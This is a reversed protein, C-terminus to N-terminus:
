WFNSAELMIAEAEEHTKQEAQEYGPMWVVAKKVSEHSVWAFGGNQTLTLNEMDASEMLLRNQRVKSTWYDGSELEPLVGTAPIEVGKGKELDQVAGPAGFDSDGLNGCSNCWSVGGGAKTRFRFWGNQHFVEVVCGSQTHLFVTCASGYQAKGELYQWLLLGSEGSAASPAKDSADIALQALNEELAIKEEAERQDRQKLQEASLAKPALKAVANNIVRLRTPKDSVAPKRCGPCNQQQKLWQELCTRCFIHEEECVTHADLVLSQCIACSYEDLMEDLAEASIQRQHKAPQLQAMVEAASPRQNPDNSLLKEVLAGLKASQTKSAKVTDNVLDQNFAFIGVGCRSVMSVGTLLESLMCGVAWMDDKNTYAKAGAKEPSAYTLTGARSGAENGSTMCALGFDTIKVEEEGSTFLVNDPKMDRHIMKKSHIHQLGECLQLVIKTVRDDGIPGKTAVMNVLSSWTGGTALEMVICFFRGKKHMYCTYYRIVNKHALRLLMQVERKLNEVPLGNREAKDVNIMKVAYLQDDMSSRMTYTKGFAGEGLLADDKNPHFSFNDETADIGNPQLAGAKRTAAEVQEGMRQQKIGSAKALTVDTCVLVVGVCIGESNYRPSVNALVSTAALGTQTVNTGKQHNVLELYVGRSADGKMAASVASKYKALCTPHLFGEMPKGVVTLRTHGTASAVVKNWQTVNGHNDVGFIPSKVSDMLHMLETAAEDAASKAETENDKMRSLLAEGENAEDSARLCDSALHGIGEAADVEWKLWQQSRGRVSDTYVEFSARPHMVGHKHQVITKQGQAAGGWRITTSLEPRFWILIGEDSIPVCLTGACISACEAFRVDIDEMCDTKVIQRGASSTNWKEILRQVMAELDEKSPVTGVCSIRGRYYVVAGSCGPILDVISPDSEILGRIRLGPNSGQQYMKDCLKSHLQLSREHRAHAATDILNTLAMSFAQTLLEIAMRMQFSVFKPEMHHAIMIGWLQDKVVIAVAITATVGMNALYEKHCAHAPRLSSMTLPLSHSPDGEQLLVPSDPARVDVLIRVSVARFQDRSRQPIDTAPYHLGLFSDDKINETCFETIVEGHHDEHFKYMMVRDYGSMQFFEESVQQCMSELTECTSLRDIAQRVRQHFSFANEYPDLEEIDIALGMDPIRHLILNVLMRMNGDSGVLGVTVPNALALDKMMLAAEIASPNDIYDVFSKGMLEPVEIGLFAGCNQSVGKIALGHSEDALVFVGHPMVAGPNNLMRTYDEIERMTPVYAHSSGMTSSSNADAHLSAGTSNPSTYTEHILVDAQIQRNRAEQLDRETGAM